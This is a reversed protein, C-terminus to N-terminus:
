GAVLFIVGLGILLAGFLRRKLDGENLLRAGLFAALLMSVERAPAVHSIPALQMARLVLIYGFPSVVAVAVIYRWSQKWALKLDVQQQLVIPLLLAGRLPACIWDFVLPAIMLYKVSYGDLLTYTAICAGTMAGWILGARVKVSAVQTSDLLAVGGAITFTGFVVLLLGLISLFTPAEGLWLMAGIASLLPGTGRALPYVISLDSRAYGTQLVFFYLNHVVCSAILWPWADASIGLGTDRFFYWVIPAYALTTVGSTLLSFALPHIQAKKVWFNWTAHLVAAVLVMALAEVPM